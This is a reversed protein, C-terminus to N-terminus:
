DGSLRGTIDRFSAHKENPDRWQLFNRDEELAYKGGFYENFIIRFTNVPTMGDYAINKKGDPFKYASIIGFADRIGSDDLDSFTESGAIQSRPGHDSQIIIISQENRSLIKDVIAPIQSNLYQVQEAYLKKNGHTKVDPIGGDRAFIYPEHPTQMHAFVFAPRDTLDSVNPIMELHCLIVDRQTLMQNYTLPELMTTRFIWEVFTSQFVNAQCVELDVSELHSTLDVNSDLSIITYGHRKLEQMVANYHMLKKNVIWPEGDMKDTHVYKMNLTSPISAHTLHYNTHSDLLVFGRNKLFGELESNDFGYSDRLTKTSAYEDPVIYYIDPYKVDNIDYADVVYDAGMHSDVTAVAMNALTMVVLVIAIGNTLKTTNIFSRHTRKISTMAIAFVIIFPIVFMWNTIRINTADNVMMHIHGYSFFLVTFVTTAMGAKRGDKFALRMVICFVAVSLISIGLVIMFDFFAVEFINNAYLFLIFFAGFLIPHYSTDFLSPQILRRKM